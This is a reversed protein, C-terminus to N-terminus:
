FVKTKDDWFKVGPISAKEKLQAAYRNLESQNVSILELRGSAIVAELFKQADQVEGKWNHRVHGTTQVTPAIKVEPVFDEFPTAVREEPALAEQAKREEEQQKRIEENAKQEAARRIKEQADEYTLMAKKLIKKADEPKQLDEKEKMTIAKHAKHAAEKMPAYHDKITKTLETLTKGLTGAYTYDDSDKIVLDMTQDYIMIAQETFETESM